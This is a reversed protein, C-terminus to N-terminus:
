FLVLDDLARQLPAPLPGWCELILTTVPGIETDSLRERFNRAVAAGLAAVDIVIWPGRAPRLVAVAANENAANENAVATM